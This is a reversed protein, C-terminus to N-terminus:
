FEVIESSPPIYRTSIKEIGYSPVVEQPIHYISAIEETNLIIRNSGFDTPFRGKTYLWIFRKRFFIKEDYYLIRGSIPRDITTITKTDRIIGNGSPNDFVKLTGMVLAVNKDINKSFLDNKAVYSFRITCWYGPKSIKKEISEIVEREGPSLRFVSIDEKEEKEQGVKWEIKQGFFALFLNKTFEAIYEFPSPEKKEKRGMLKDVEKQGRVQWEVGFEKDNGLVPMAMIQLIIWEQDTLYSAGESLVSIPDIKEEDKLNEWIKYTKIPYCNKPTIKDEEKRTFTYETGFVNFTPNPIKWPLDKLPDDVEEIFASPYQSYIRSTVFDKLRKHCRIIFRLKGNHGILEFVYFPPTFGLIYKSYPDGGRYIAHLSYFIEEMAAPTKKVFEPVKIELFVWEIGGRYAIRKTILHKEKIIYWLILPLILWWSFFLFGLSFKFFDIM